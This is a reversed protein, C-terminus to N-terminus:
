LENLGPLQQPEVASPRDRPVPVAAAQGGGGGPRPKPKSGGTSPGGPTSAAGGGGHMFRQATSNGYGGAINASRVARDRDGGYRKMNEAILKAYDDRGVRGGKDLNFQGPM